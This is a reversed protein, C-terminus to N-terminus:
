RIASASPDKVVKEALELAQYANVLGGTASLSSFKAKKKKDSTRNPLNVKLNSHVTASKLLVDKLQAATLEPYYSWVLAAVGSVVPGSFSTGDVKVYQNEPFLSVVDVGPAFIDVTKQGYNSFKGALNEDLLMSSAGVEIWNNVKEGVLTTKSPYHMEEDINTADNGASHVMLVNHEQAYKIAEDVLQKQPSYTKGFSMNIINAGNDVAYRIALAIDKDYEDGSPVARLAMIEVNEAIGDIGINNNRIGAIIGSVPTGHNPRPGKVNSNGYGRDNIDEVNDALAKRPTFDLNLHYELFRKYHEKMGKLAEQSLGLDYKELLWAKARTVNEDSSSIGAVDEKTLAHKEKKLHQALLTEVYNLSKEFAIINEQTKVYEALEKDYKKKVEQYLKYENMKGAPVESNSKINAYKPSLDRLIRVYEYTEFEIDEGTATGLFGWGHVDDVYGNKDDDQGNGAIEKKNTWIRGKLDEHFIDVGSDIVAVVVKKKPQKGKLLQQYAQNVSAGQIQDLKADQNYWNLYKKDIKDLPVGEDQASATTVVGIMFLCSIGFPILCNKKTKM